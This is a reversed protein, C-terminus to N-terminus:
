IILMVSSSMTSILNTSSGNKTKRATRSTFSPYTTILIRGESDFEERGFGTTVTLPKQKSFTAVGSYGKREAPNWFTYYGPVNRLHPPLQDPTAKIEQLCLIDPSEKTLWPFLGKKDAARIGNVNWCLIKM